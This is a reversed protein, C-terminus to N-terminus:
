KEEKKLKITISVLTKEKELYMLHSKFDIHGPKTATIYYIGPTVLFKFRGQNDSVDTEILQNNNKKYIRVIALGIPHNYVDTVIGYPRAKKSRLIELAGILAYFILSLVYLASFSIIMMIIAFVIGLILLPIRLKQLFKNIRTVWIWFNIISKSGATPDLPINFAISQDADAIKFNGDTYIKEYFTSKKEKSPFIYGSKSCTIYFEGPKVLFGYRGQNDTVVRELVRNYKTEYIRVIALSLPQGTEANFVVGWPKNKKKVGILQLIQILWYLLQPLLSSLSILANALVPALLIAVTTTVVATNAKNVTEPKAIFDRIKEATQEMFVGAIVKINASTKASYDSVILKQNGTTQLVFDKGDFQHVGADYSTYTYLSDKTYPLKAEKDTSEFYVAKLYDTLIKGGADAAIVRVPGPFAQGANIKEPVNSLVLHVEVEELGEGRLTTVTLIESFGSFNGAADYARVHFRYTTDPQLNAFDYNTDSTVGIMIGTDSNFIQYGTVGVEDTSADWALDITTTTIDTARLNTPATPAETDPRATPTGEGSGPTPTSTPTGTPTLTATPTPPPPIPLANFTIQPHNDLTVADTTDTVTITSTHATASTVYAFIRGNVDTLPASFTINDGAQDSGVSVAHGALKNGYADKLTITVTSTQNVDLSTPAATATSVSASCIGPIVQFEHSSGASGSGSITQPGVTKMVVNNYTIAGSAMAAAAPFEAQSDSSALTITDEHALDRYNSGDAADISLTFPTGATISSPTSDSYSLLHSGSEDLTEGPLQFLLQTGATTTFSFEASQPTEAGEANRAKIKYKYTTGTNGSVAGKLGSDTTTTTVPNLPWNPTFFAEGGAGQPKPDPSTEEFQISSSGVNLNTLSDTMNLAISNPTILGVTITTPTQILTYRQQFSYTDSPEGDGNRATANYRYMTNANLGTDACSNTKTWDTFCGQGGGGPNGQIESFTLGSSGAALNSLTGTAVLTIQSTSDATATIGAPTEISTYANANIDGTPDSDGNLAHTSLTYSINASHGTSSTWSTGPITGSNGGGTDSAYFNHQAGGSAWTWPLTTTTQGTNSHNADTPTNASTFASFGATPQGTISGRYAQLCRTYPTDALLDTSETGSGAPPSGTVTVKATQGTQCTSSSYEYVKYGDPATANQNWAWTISSADNATHGVVSNHVKGTNTPKAPATLATAASSNNTNEVNDANHSRAIVSVNTDPNFTKVINNSAEWNAKTKWVKTGGCTGGADGQFWTTGTADCSIALETGAPNTGLNVTQIVVSTKDDADVGSTWSNASITPASPVAAGTYKAASATSLATNGSVSGPTAKVQFQYATNPSLGTINIGSVGGWEAYTHWKAVGSCAAAGGSPDQAYNTGGDCTIAYQTNNSTSGDANAGGTPNSNQNVAVALRDSTDAPVSATAQGPTAAYTTNNATAGFPGASVTTGDAARAKVQYTYTTNPYLSTNAVGSGSGWTAYSQWDEGAQLAGTSAVVYKAVGATVNYVAYTVDSPNGNINVIAQLSTGSNVNVTPPSPANPKTYAPSAGVNYLSTAGGSITRLAQFCYPVAVSLGTDPNAASSYGSDGNTCTATQKHQYNTGTGNSDNNTIAWTIQSSSDATGSTVTPGYGSYVARVQAATLATNFITLDSFLGNAWGDPVQSSGVYFSSAMSGPTWTGSYATGAQGNVYIQTGSTNNWTGVLHIWTNASFTLTKSAFQWGSNRVGMRFGNTNNYWIGLDGTTSGTSWLLYRVDATDTSAFPPKIWMSISGANGSINGSSAYSLTEGARTAAATTTPIYSTAFAGAELQVADYWAQGVANEAITRIVVSTTAGSNFSCSVRQWTSTNTASAKCGLAGNLDLSALGGASLSSYIYGTLVYNTSASITIAPTFWSAEWAAAGANDFKMSYSGHLSKDSARTWKTGSENFGDADTGTGNEFSSNVVINTRSEEIRVAGGPNQTPYNTDTSLVKEIRGKDSNEVTVLNGNDNTYTANAGASTITAAPSAAYDATLNTTTGQMRFTQAGPSPGLAASPLLKVALTQGRGTNTYDSDLTGTTAHVRYCYSTNASLGGDAYSIANAPVTTSANVWAGECAAQREVHFNTETTSNDTWRVTLGSTSASDVYVTTPGKEYTAKVDVNTVYQRFTVGTPLDAWPDGPCDTTNCSELYFQLTQDKAWSGTWSLTSYAPTTNPPAFNKATQASAGWKINGYVKQGAPAVQGATVTYYARVYMDVQKYYFVDGADPYTTGFWGNLSAANAYIYDADDPTAYAEDILTYWTTGTSRVWTPTAVDSTAVFYDTTVDVAKASSPATFLFHYFLGAWMLLFAGLFIGHFVKSYAFVSWNYYWRFKHRMVDHLPLLAPITTRTSKQLRVIQEDLSKVDSEKPDM